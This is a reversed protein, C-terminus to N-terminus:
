TGLYSDNMSAEYEKADKGHKKRQQKTVKKKQMKRIKNSTTTRTERVYERGM